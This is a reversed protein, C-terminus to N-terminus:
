TLSMFVVELINSIPYRPAVDLGPHLSLTDPVEQGAVGAAPVAAQDNRRNTLITVARAFLRATGRRWKSGRPLERSEPLVVLASRRQLEAPRSCKAWTQSLNSACSRGLQECLDSIAHSSLGLEM